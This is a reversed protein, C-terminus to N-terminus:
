SPISLCSSALVTKAQFISPSLKQPSHQEPRGGHISSPFFASSLSERKETHSQVAVVSKAPTARNQTFLLYSLEMCKLLWWNECRSYDFCTEKTTYPKKRGTASKCNSAQWHYHQFHDVFAAPPCKASEYESSNCAVAM